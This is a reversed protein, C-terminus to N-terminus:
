GGKKGIVVSGAFPLDQLVIGDRRSPESVPLGRVIAKM